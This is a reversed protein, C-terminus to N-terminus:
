HGALVVSRGRLIPILDYEAAACLEGAETLSMRCSSFVAGIGERLYIMRLGARKRPELDEVSAGVANMVRADIEEAFAYPEELADDVNGMSISGKMPLQTLTSTRKDGLLPKWGAEWRVWERLLYRVHDLELELQNMPKGYVVRLAASV